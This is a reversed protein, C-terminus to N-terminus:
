TRLMKMGQKEIDQSSEEGICKDACDRHCHKKADPPSTASQIPPDKRIRDQPDAEKATNTDM